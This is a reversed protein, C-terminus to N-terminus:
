QVVGEINDEVADVDFESGDTWEVQITLSVNDQTEALQLLKLLKFAWNDKNLGDFSSIAEVLVYVDEMNNTKTIHAGSANSM